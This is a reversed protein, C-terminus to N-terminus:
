AHTPADPERALRGAFHHVLAAVVIVVLVAAIVGPLFWREPLLVGIPLVVIAAAVIGWGIAGDRLEQATWRDLARADALGVLVGFLVAVVFVAIAVPQSAEGLGIWKPILLLLAALWAVGYVVVLVRVIQRVRLM